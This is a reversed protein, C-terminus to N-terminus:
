NDEVLPVFIFSGLKKPFIKGKKKKLKVMEQSYSGRVPAVLVGGDKLQEVLAKPVERCAATVIVRDFPAENSYGKSGDGKVIKVNKYGKLRRKAYKFLEAVREITFVKGKGGVLVSLLAAQYGSGAGVELVKSGKKVELADTMIMVTTPQSITQGEILPLATDLYADDVYRDLVFKERPVKKFAGIVRKDKVIGSKLWYDILGEKM